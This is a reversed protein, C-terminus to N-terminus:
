PLGALFAQGQGITEPYRAMTAQAERRAESYRGALAYASALRYRATASDSSALHTRLLDILDDYRKAEYYARVLAPHDVTTTGLHQTLLEEAKVDEGTLLYGSAAYIALESFQPSLAYAALYADRAEEHRGATMLVTGRELIFNQRMPSLREAITVEGLASEYDGIARYILAAEIRLRADHPAREIEKNMEAIALMVFEGRLQEPVNQQSALNAAYNVLQERIEQTAFSDDSLAKEFRAKNESPGGQIPSIAYVLDNAARMSPMNVTLILFIAVAGAVPMIIAQAQGKGTAPLVDLATIPHSSRYHIYALIAALPIYSFLNDFVVLAQLAYAALAAGLMIRELPTVAPSRYLALAAVFLLSVFLLFAPIGGVVMWDVFASHARDFWPEQVYLEPRYESNFVYNFGEHGYGVLPREVIGDIAMNWLTFRVQLEDLSISAIRGWIPHATIWDNDKALWFGGVLILLAALLAAARMRGRKGSEMMWLLAALGSAGVVALIAGRSATNFLIIVQLGALALLMHRLWGKSEFAQWVSIFAAFMLYVALYIANGFTGDVRVGGQNIPIGGSLQLLAYGCVLASVAVFTLWWKRWLKDVSLVSGAVVFFLFVHILTVFGDMREFNSWFAKHPNVALLDAVFMWAVLAGYLVFTWSFRPRYRRDIFALAVWAVAAIEVLIRFCFGKGTIYPFFMENATYLPLFLIAFLATFAIYRLTTIM